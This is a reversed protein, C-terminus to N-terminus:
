KADRWLDRQFRFLAARNESTLLSDFKYDDGDGFFSSISGYHPRHNTHIRSDVSVQADPQNLFLKRGWEALTPPLHQMWVESEPGPGLDKWISVFMAVGHGEYYKFAISYETYCEQCIDVRSKNNRVSTKLNHHPCITEAPSNRRFDASTLTLSKWSIYVNQLRHMLRGQVIRCEERYQRVYDERVVTKAAKSSIVELLKRCDPQQHYRKIVMTFATTGFLETVAYVNSYRHKSVCVPLHLSDYKHIRSDATYTVSCYRLLNEMSHLRGCPSCAIHNPLDLALLHLLALTDKTSSNLKLFYRTGLLHKLHNCTLSFAVASETPLYDMICVLIDLPVGNLISSSLAAPRQRTRFRSFLKQFYEMIKSPPPLNNM